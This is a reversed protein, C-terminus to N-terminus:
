RYATDLYRILVRVGTLGKLDLPGKMQGYLGAAEVAFGPRKEVFCRLVSGM